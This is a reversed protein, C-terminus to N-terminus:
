SEPTSGLSCITAWATRRISPEILTIFVYQVADRGDKTKYVMRKTIDGPSRVADMVKNPKNCISGIVLKALQFPTKRNQRCNLVLSKWEM